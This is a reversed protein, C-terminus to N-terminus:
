WGGAAVIEVTADASGLSRSLCGGDIRREHDDDARTEVSRDIPDRERYAAGLVRWVVVTLALFLVLWAFAEVNVAATEKLDLNAPYPWDPPPSTAIIAHVGHGAAKAGDIIGGLPGLASFHRHWYKEAHIFALADVTQHKLLIPFAAFALPTAVIWELA